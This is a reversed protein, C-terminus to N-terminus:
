VQIALVSIFSVPPSRCENFSLDGCMVTKADCWNQDSLRMSLLVHHRYSNRAPAVPAMPLRSM